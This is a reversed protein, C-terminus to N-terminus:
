LGKCTLFFAAAAIDKRKHEWAAEAEEDRGWKEAQITEDLRALEMASEASLEGQWVAIGLIASGLLPVMMALGTIEADSAGALLAALADLSAQPQDIPMLSETTLLHIGLARGAWQLVPNFMTGQREAIEPSRYCLLDTRAYALINGVYAEREAAARDITLNVLRTLPMREPDIVVVQADWEAAVAEALLRSVIVMANRGQTRLPKGDLLIRFGGSAPDFTAREYFKRPLAKNEAKAKSMGVM